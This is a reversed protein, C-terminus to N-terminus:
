EKNKNFCDKFTILLLTEVDKLQEDNLENLLSVVRSFNEDKLLRIAITGQAKSNKEEEASAKTWGTLYEPTTNLAEAIPELFDIPMKEIDGNEYRYITSRNKGLKFGLEDATMGLEKRREKIKQGVTIM